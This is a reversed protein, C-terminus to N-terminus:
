WWPLWYFYYFRTLASSELPQLFGNVSSLASGALAWARVGEARSCQKSTKLSHESIRQFGPLTQSPNKNNEM